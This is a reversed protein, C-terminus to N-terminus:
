SANDDSDKRKSLTAFFDSLNPVTHQVVKLAVFSPSFFFNGGLLQFLFLGCLFLLIRKGAVKRTPQNTYKNHTQINPNELINDQTGFLNAPLKENKIVTLMTEENCSNM